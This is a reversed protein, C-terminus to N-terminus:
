TCLTSCKVDLHRQRDQAGSQKPGVFLQKKFSEAMHIWMDLSARLVPFAAELEWHHWSAVDFRQLM